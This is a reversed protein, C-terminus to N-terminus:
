GPEHARCSHAVTRSVILSRLCCCLDSLPPQTSGDCESGKETLRAVYEEAVDRAAQARESASGRVDYTGALLNTSPAWCGSIHLWAGDNQRFYHSPACAESCLHETM